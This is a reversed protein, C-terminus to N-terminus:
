ALRGLDGSEFATLVKTRELLDFRKVTGLECCSRQSMHRGTKERVEIAVKRGPDVAGYESGLLFATHDAKDRPCQVGRAQELGEKKGLGQPSEAVADPEQRRRAKEKSDNREGSMERGAAPFGIHVLALQEADRDIRIIMSRAHPDAEESREAAPEARMTGLIEADNCRLALDGRQMKVPVAASRFDALRFQTSQARDPKTVHQM